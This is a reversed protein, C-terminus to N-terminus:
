HVNINDKKEGCSPKVEQTEEGWASRTWSMMLSLGARWYSREQTGRSRLFLTNEAGEGAVWFCKRGSLRWALSATWTSCSSIHRPSQWRLQQGAPQGARRSWLYTLACILNWELPTIIIILLMRLVLFLNMFYQLPSCMAHRDSCCCM